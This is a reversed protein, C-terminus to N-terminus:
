SVGALICVETIVNVFDENGLHALVQLVVLLAQTDPNTYATNGLVPIHGICLSTASVECATCTVADEIDTLIDSVTSRKALSKSPSALAGGLLGALYIWRLVFM